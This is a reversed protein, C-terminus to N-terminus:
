KTVSGDRASRHIIAEAWAASSPNFEKTFKILKEPMKLASRRDTYTLLEQGEWRAIKKRPTHCLCVDNRQSKACEYNRVKVDQRNKGSGSEKAVRVPIDLIKSLTSSTM